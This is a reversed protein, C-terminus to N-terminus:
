IHGSMGGRNLESASNGTDIHIESGVLNAITTILVGGHGDYRDKRFFMKIKGSHFLEANKVNPELWTECDIIIGPKIDSLIHRCQFLKSEM